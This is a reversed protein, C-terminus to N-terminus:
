VVIKQYSAFLSHIIKKSLLPEWTFASNKNASIMNEVFFFMPYHNIRLMSKVKQLTNQRLDSDTLKLARDVLAIM